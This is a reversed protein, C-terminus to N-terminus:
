AATVLGPPFSRDDTQVLHRGPVSAGTSSSKRPRKEKELSIGTRYNTVNQYSVLLLIVVPSMLTAM